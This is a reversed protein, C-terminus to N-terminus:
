GSAGRRWGEAQAPRRVLEAPVALRGSDDCAEVEFDGSEGARARILELLWRHRGVGPVPLVASPMVSVRWRTSAATPQGFDAAETQRRWRRLALGITGSEEACLQLRRSATMDLRAVEGVVAGLGGHRLGEEICALVTKDNGAEVYIVRDPPLGAQALAPAFLDPRTIVWLVKGKTRAAVGAAFLAAAAGDIAGNGGGAIEHLAGLALGGGPLRSDVEAIGFPLVSKARRSRGKIKEIQARLLEIAPEPRM